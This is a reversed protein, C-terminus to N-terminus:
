SRTRQLLEQANALMKDAIAEPNVTYTGNQLADRVAAVKATDIEATDGAKAAELTRALTSVTVAVGATKTAKEKAVSGAAGSKPAPAQTNSNVPILNDSNPGLKMTSMMSELVVM